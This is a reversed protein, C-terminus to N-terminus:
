LACVISFHTTTWILQYYREGRRRRPSLLSKLEKSVRGLFRVFLNSWDTFRVSRLSDFFPHHDM